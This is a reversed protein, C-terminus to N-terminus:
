VDLRAVESTHRIPRNASVTCGKRLDDAFEGIRRRFSRRMGARSTVRVAAFAVAAATAAHREESVDAAEEEGHDDSDEQAAHSSESRLAASARQAHRLPPDRVKRLREAAAGIGRRTTVVM